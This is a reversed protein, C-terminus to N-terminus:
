FSNFAQLSAAGYLSRLPAFLILSYWVYGFSLAFAENCGTLLPLVLLMTLATWRGRRFMRRIATM